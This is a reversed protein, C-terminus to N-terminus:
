FGVIRYSISFKLVPYITYQSIQKELRAEHDQDPNSTPSLLGTSAITLQPPGQYFGGLEFAFGVKKKLGLTRGFGIGAYPSIKSSPDVQFNFTGIKEQPIMIDGFQLGSAAKGDFVTQFMNLGAGGTIFVHRFLYFDLLLSLSGTKYDVNGNYEVSEETFSFDRNLALQEFGLRMSLRKQFNFVLDGGFGNTSTKLAIGLGKTFDNQASLNLTGLVSILLILLIPRITKM